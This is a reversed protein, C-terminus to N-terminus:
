APKSIIELGEEVTAATPQAPTRKVYKLLRGINAERNAQEKSLEAVTLPFKTQDKVWLTSRSGEIHQAIQVGVSAKKAVDIHESWLFREWQIRIALALLKDGVVPDYGTPDKLIQEEISPLQRLLSVMPRKTNKVGKPRGAKRRVTGEITLGPPAAPIKATAWNPDRPLEKNDM